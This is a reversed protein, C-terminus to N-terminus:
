GYYYIHIQVENFSFVPVVNHFDHLYTPQVHLLGILEVEVAVAGDIYTCVCM